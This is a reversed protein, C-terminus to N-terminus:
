GKQCMLCDKWLPFFYANCLNIVESFAILLVLGLLVGLMIQYPSTDFSERTGPTQPPSSLPVPLYLLQLFEFLYKNIQARIKLALTHLCPCRTPTLWHGDWLLPSFVWLNWLKATYTPHSDLHNGRFGRLLSEYLLKWAMELEGVWLDWCLHIVEITWVHSVGQDYLSALRM